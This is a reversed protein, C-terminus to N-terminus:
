KSPISNDNMKSRLDVIENKVIDQTFQEAKKIALETHERVFQAKTIREVKGEARCVQMFWSVDNLYEEDVDTYFYEPCNFTGYVKYYKKM